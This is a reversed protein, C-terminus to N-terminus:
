SCNRGKEVINEVYIGVLHTLNCSKQENTFNPQENSIKRLEAFKIHRLVSIEFHKQPDRRSRFLSLRSYRYKSVPFHNCNQQWLPVILIFTVKPMMEINDFNCRVNNDRTKTPQKPSLPGELCYKLRYRVTEWLSPSLLSFRYVHSFFVDLCGGGAGVALVTSM